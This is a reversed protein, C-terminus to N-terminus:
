GEKDAKRLLALASEIVINCDKKNFGCQILDFTTLGKLIELSGEPSQRRVKQFLAATGRIWQDLTLDKPPLHDFDFTDITKSM